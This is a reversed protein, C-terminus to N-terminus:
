SDRLAPHMDWREAIVSLNVASVNDCNINAIASWPLIMEVGERPFVNGSADVVEITGTIQYARNVLGAERLNCVLEPFGKEAEQRAWYANFDILPFRLTVVNDNVVLTKIDDRNASVADEMARIVFDELTPVRTPAPTNTITPTASPIPTPMVISVGISEGLINLRVTSAGLPIDFVFFTLEESNTCHGLFRGPYPQEL